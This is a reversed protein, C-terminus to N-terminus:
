TKNKLYLSHIYALMHQEMLAEVVNDSVLKNSEYTIKNDKNIVKVNWEKQLITRNELHSVWINAVEVLEELLLNM